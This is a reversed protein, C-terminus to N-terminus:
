HKQTHETYVINWGVLSITLFKLWKEECSFFWHVLFTHQKWIIGSLKSCISIECDETHMKCIDLKHHFNKLMCKMYIPRWRGGAYTTQLVSFNETTDTQRNVPPLHVTPFEQSYISHCVSLYVYTVSFMVKVVENTPTLLHGSRANGIFRNLSTWKPCVEGGGYYRCPSRPVTGWWM